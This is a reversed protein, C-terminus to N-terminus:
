MPLLEQLPFPQLATMAESFGATITVVEPLFWMIVIPTPLTVTPATTDLTFTLSTGPSMVQQTLEQLPQETLAMQHPEVMDVDWLYEYAESETISYIRVHGENSTNSSGVDYNIGGIAVKTGDGSLSVSYGFQDGSGDALIDSGIQTWTTTGSIIKSKWIEVAGGM